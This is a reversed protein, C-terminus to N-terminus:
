CNFLRVEMWDGEFFIELELSPETFPFYAEVWRMQVDGFLARVLSELTLKLDALVAEQPDLPSSSSSSSSPMSTMADMEEDTFVRVGEMQHFVPYHSADIEDRRYVDGTCLFRLNGGRMLECQHASTHASCIYVTVHRSCPFTCISLYISLYIRLSPALPLPSRQRASLVASFPLSLSCLVGPFPLFPFPLTAHLVWRLVRESDVYYTESRNRSVHGPAILLEDFCQETTVVPELDDFTLFPADQGHNEEFHREILVKITNLPHADQLHLNRGVKQSITPTINSDKNECLWTYPHTAAAAATTSSSSSSSSRRLASMRGLGLAGGGRRIVASRGLLALM